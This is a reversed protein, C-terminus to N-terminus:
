RVARRRVQAVKRVFLRATGGVEPADHMRSHVVLPTTDIAVADLHVVQDKIPFEPTVYADGNSTLSASLREYRISATYFNDDYWYLDVEGNVLPAVAALRNGQPTQILHPVVASWNTYRAVATGEAEDWALVIGQPSPAALFRWRSPDTETLWLPMSEVRRADTTVNAARIWAPSPYGFERWAIFFRAGDWVAAAALAEGADDTVEVDGVVAVGTETPRFVKAVLKMPPLGVDLMTFVDRRQFVMVAAGGGAAGAMVTATNSPADFLLPQPDIAVLERTYRRLGAKGNGFWMVWITSGDYSVDLWSQQFVTPDYPGVGTNSAVLLPASGPRALRVDSVGFSHDVWAVVAANGVREVAPRLEQHAAGAPSFRTTFPNASAISTSDFLGVEVRYDFFSVWIAAGSGDSRIAFDGIRLAYERVLPESYMGTPEGASSVRTVQLAAPDDGRVYGVVYEGGRWAVSPSTMMGAPWPISLDALAVERAAGTPTGSSSIVQGLLRSGRMMVLFWGDGNSAVDVSSAPFVEPVLEAAHLAGSADLLQSAVRQGATISAILYDEGRSAAAVNHRSWELLPSALQFQRAVTLNRDLVYGRGSCTLVLVTKGNTATDISECNAEGIQATTTGHEAVKAAQLTGGSQWIVVFGAGDWVVQPITGPGFPIGARDLVEGGASIRTGYVSETLGNRKDTYVAFYSEGDTAIDASWKETTPEGFRPASLPVEPPLPPTLAFATVAVLLSLVTLTICRM